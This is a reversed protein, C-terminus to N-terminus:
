VNFMKLDATLPNAETISLASQEEQEKQLPDERSVYKKTEVDDIELSDADTNVKHTTIEVVYGNEVKEVCLNKYGGDQTQISKTVRQYEMVYM